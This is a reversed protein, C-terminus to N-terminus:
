NGVTWAMTPKSNPGRLPQQSSSQKKGKKPQLAKQARAEAAALRALRQQEREDDTLNPNHIPEPLLADGERNM